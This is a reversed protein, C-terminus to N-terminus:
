QSDYKLEDFVLEVTQGVLAHLRRVAAEAFPVAIPDSVTPDYSSIGLVRVRVAQSSLHVIVEDGDVVSSVVGRLGSTLTGAALRCGGM